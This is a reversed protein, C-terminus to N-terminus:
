GCVSSELTQGLEEAVIGVAVQSTESLDDKKPVFDFIVGWSREELREACVVDWDDEFLSVDGREALAEM